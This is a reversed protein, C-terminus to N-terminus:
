KQLHEALTQLAQAPDEDGILAVFGHGKINVAWLSYDMMKPAAAVIEYGENESGCPWFTLSEPHLFDAAKLDAHGHVIHKVWPLGAYVVRHVPADTSPKVEEKESWYRIRNNQDLDLGVWVFDKGSIASKDVNRKSVAFSKPTMRSSINGPWRGSNVNREAMQKFANSKSADDIFQRFAPFHPLSFRYECVFLTSRRVARLYHELQKALASPLNEKAVQTENGFVDIIWYTRSPGGLRSYVALGSGLNLMWKVIEVKTMNQDALKFPVLLTARHQKKISEVLKEAGQYSIRGVEGPRARIKEPSFDFLVNPLSALFVVADPREMATLTKKIDDFCSKEKTGPFNGIKKVIFAKALEKAIDKALQGNGIPVVRLVPDLKQEIPGGVVVVTKRESEMM